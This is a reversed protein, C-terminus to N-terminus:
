LLLKCGMFCSSEQSCFTRGDECSPSFNWWECGLSSPINIKPPVWPGKGVEAWMIAVVEVRRGAGWGDPLVQSDEQPSLGISSLVMHSGLPFPPALRPLVSSGSRALAAPLWAVNSALKRCKGEVMAPSYGSSPAVQM